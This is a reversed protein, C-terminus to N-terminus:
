RKPGANKEVGEGFGVSSMGSNGEKQFCRVSRPGDGKVSGSVGGKFGKEKWWEGRFDSIGPHVVGRYVEFNDYVKRTADLEGMMCGKAWFVSCILDQSPFIAMDNNNKDQLNLCKAGFKGTVGKFTFCRQNSLCLNLTDGFGFVLTESFPIKGLFKDANERRFLQQHPLDTTDDTPLSDSVHTCSILSALYLIAIPHSSTFKMVTVHATNYRFYTHISSPLFITRAFPRADM